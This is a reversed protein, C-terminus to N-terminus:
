RDTSTTNTFSYSYYQIGDLSLSCKKKWNKKKVKDLAQDFSIIDDLSFHTTPTAAETQALGAISCKFKKGNEATGFDILLFRKADPSRLFNSPKIDRHVIHHKHVCSM